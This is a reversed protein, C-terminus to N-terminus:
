RPRDSPVLMVWVIKAQRQGDCQWAEHRRRTGSEREGEGERQAAREVMCKPGRGQGWIQETVVSWTV